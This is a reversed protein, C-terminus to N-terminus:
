ESFKGKMQEYVSKFEFNGIHEGTEDVVPISDMGMKFAAQIGDLVSASADIAKMGKSKVEGNTSIFDEIKLMNLLSIFNKSEFFEKVIEDKPTFFMDEKPGAQVIRGRDMLIIRSALKMAEQIDHTVFIITKKLNKQIRLIEDQLSKRTIEDIAGFPEDMLIIDPDAALARALGVRQQQGGSLERPYRKLYSEDMGVIDILEKARNEKYELDSNKITLVYYINEEITMHPFLGVQQIVYGISRRLEIEDWKKIDKGEILVNGGTPKILSNIIKLTTTKGCGSPGIFVVFEGKEIDLSVRDVAVNGRGYVKSINELSILAM